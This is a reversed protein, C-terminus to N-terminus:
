HYRREPEEEDSEKHYGPAIGTGASRKALNISIDKPLDRWHVLSAPWRMLARRAIYTQVSKPLNLGRRSCTENQPERWGSQISDMETRISYM